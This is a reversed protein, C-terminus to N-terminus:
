KTFYGILNRVGQALILGIAVIVLVYTAKIGVGGWLLNSPTADELTVIHGTTEITVLSYGILILIGFVAIGIATPIFRKPNTVIALVTFLAIVGLSIYLTWLSFNVVRSVPATNSIDEGTVQDVEASYGMASFVLYVGILAIIAVGINIILSTVKNDM